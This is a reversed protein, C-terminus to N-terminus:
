HYPDHSTSLTFAWFPLGAEASVKSIIELNQWFDSRIGGSMVPYHDFSVMPLRVQRIFERVYEEYTGGLHAEGAYTPNLNIPADHFNWGIQPPNWYTFYQLVQAGYALDTSSTATSPRSM